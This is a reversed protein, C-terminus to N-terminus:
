QTRHLKEITRERNKIVGRLIAIQNQADVLMDRYADLMDQMVVEEGPPQPLPAPSTM